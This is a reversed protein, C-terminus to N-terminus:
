PATFGNEPAIIYLRELTFPSSDHHRLVINCRSSKTCYVSQDHQLINEPGYYIRGRDDHIEGDCSELHLKLRGAEVQGYYGYTFPRADAHEAHRLKRRKAGRRRGDDLEDAPDSELDPAPTPPQQVHQPPSRM